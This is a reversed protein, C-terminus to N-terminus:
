NAALAVDQALQRTLDPMYRRMLAGHGHEALEDSITEWRWGQVRARYLAVVYGTRDRGHDCHIYVPANRPDSLAAYAREVSARTAADSTGLKKPDLPIEILNIGALRAAARDPAADGRNLRIITRINLDRRLAAIQAASPRGGRYIGGEIVASFNRPREADGCALLALSVVVVIARRM